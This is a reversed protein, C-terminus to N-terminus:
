CPYGEYLNDNLDTYFTGNHTESDCVIERGTYQGTMKFVEIDIEKDKVYQEADEYNEFGESNPCKYIDGEKIWNGHNYKGYFDHHILEANCHPCNM